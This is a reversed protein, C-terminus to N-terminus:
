AVAPFADDSPGPPYATDFAVELCRNIATILAGSSFPKLLVFDVEPWPIAPPRGTMLIVPTFRSLKKIEAALEEGGMVPMERDTLVIDWDGSKFLELAAAGDQAGGCFHGGRRFMGGLAQVSDADDDVVLINLRSAEYTYLPM